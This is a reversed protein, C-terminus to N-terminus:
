SSALEERVVRRLIKGTATHPLDDRVAIVDPTKFSGLHEHVHARLAEDDIATDPRLTVM